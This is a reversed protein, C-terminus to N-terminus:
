GETVVSCFYKEFPERSLRLWWFGTQLGNAIIWNGNICARMIVLENELWLLIQCDDRFGQFMSDWKFCRCFYLILILGLMISIVIGQLNVVPRSRFYAWRSYVSIIVHYTNAMHVPWRCAIMWMACPCLRAIPKVLWSGRPKMQCPDWMWNSHHPIDPDQVLYM